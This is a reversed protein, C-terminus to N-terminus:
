GTVIRSSTNEWAWYSPQMDPHLSPVKACVILRDLVPLLQYFIIANVSLTFSTWLVNLVYHKRTNLTFGESIKWRQFLFSAIIRMRDQNFRDGAWAIKIKQPQRDSGLNNNNIDTASYQARWKSWLERTRRFCHSTTIQICTRPYGDSCSSQMCTKLANLPSGLSTCVLEHVWFNDVSALASVVRWWSSKTCTWTTEWALSIVGQSCRWSPPPRGM